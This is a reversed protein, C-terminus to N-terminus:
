GVDEFDDSTIVKPPPAPVAPVAPTAISHPIQTPVRSLGPNARDQVADVFCM